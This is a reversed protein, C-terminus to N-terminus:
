FKGMPDVPTGNQRVEFHLHPGNAMGTSGIAAITQGKKIDQGVNVYLASCHAYLSSLGGGHDLVIANGYGGYWGSYIVHGDGSAKIPSGHGAAIDVGTHFRLNGLIPHRRWGFPSTIYSSVAPWAFSGSFIVGSKTNRKAQERRILDQLESELKENTEELEYVQNAITRRESQVNQLLQERTNEINSEVVQQVNMNRKINVIEHYKNELLRKETDVAEKKTKIEKILNLDSHIITGMFNLRNLFDTLNESGLILGLINMSGNKYSVFMRQSLQVEKVSRANELHKLRSKAAKIDGETFRLKGALQYLQEKTSSLRDRISRLQGAMERERHNASGLREREEKLRQQLRYLEQKKKKITFWSASAKLPFLCSVLLVVILILFRNLKM